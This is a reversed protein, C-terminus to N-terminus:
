EEEIAATPCSEVAEKVDAELDSPVDSNVVKSMGEDDFEFVKDCISVCAGCGICADKNVNVKM